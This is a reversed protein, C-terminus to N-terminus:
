SNRYRRNRPPFDNRPQACAGFSSRFTFISLNLNITIFEPESKSRKAKVKRTPEPSEPSSGLPDALGKGVLEQRELALLDHPINEEKFFEPVFEDRFWHLTMRYFRAFEIVTRALADFFDLWRSGTKPDECLRHIQQRAHCCIFLPHAHVCVEQLDSDVFPPFYDTWSGAVEVLEGSQTKIIKIRSFKRNPPMNLQMFRCTYSEAMLESHHERSNDFRRRTRWDPRGMNWQSLAILSNLAAQTPLLIFGGNDALVHIDGRLCLINFRSNVFLRGPLLGAVWEINRILEPKTGRALLHCFQVELGAIHTIVCRDQHPAVLAIEHKIKPTAAEKLLINRAPSNYKLADKYEVLNPIYPSNEPSTIYPSEPEKYLPHKSAAIRASHARAQPNATLRADVTLYSHAPDDREEVFVAANKSEEAM